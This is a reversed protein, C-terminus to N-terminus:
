FPDEGQSWQQELTDEDAMDRGRERSQEDNRGREPSREDERGTRRRAEDQMQESKDQFRDGMDGM